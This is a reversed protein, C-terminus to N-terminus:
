TRCIAYKKKFKINYHKLIDKIKFLHYDSKYHSLLGLYSNISAIFHDSNDFKHLKNYVGAITSNSLYARGVKLFGGIFCVGKKYHQIYIKNPNLNIKCDNYLFKKSDHYFQKASNKNKTIVCIDDVYRVYTFEKEIAWKDYNSLYFNGFWQSTLNGIPLGKDKETTFLSKNKPLLKWEEKPTKYICNKTPDHFIVKHILWLLLERNKKIYNKNIFAKLKNWLITRDISTFFAQCDFKGIYCDETYCNSAKYINQFVQEQAALTGKGKRCSFTTSIFEKEFLPELCKIILHHVIRDRFNAAFIERIKPKFVLFCISKGIEYTKSNIEYYLQKINNIYDMEFLLADTKWRKNKRCDFYANFIDQLSFFGKEESFASVALVRNNTNQNSRSNNNVNGNNGNVNRANTSSNQIM